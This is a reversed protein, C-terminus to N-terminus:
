NKVAEKNLPTLFSAKYRTTKPEEKTQNSEQNESPTQITIGKAMFAERSTNQVPKATKVKQLQAKLDKNESELSTFDYM